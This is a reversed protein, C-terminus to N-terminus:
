SRGERHRLRLGDLFLELGYTFREAPDARIMGTLAARLDPDALVPDRQEWDGDARQAQEEITHGLVYHFVTFLMWAAREAPFGAGTLVRLAQEGSHVTNPEIVYTGAVVRAGDRHGLLARRLRQGLEALQADWPGDTFPERAVSDLIRDAMAGLLAQKNAFHWYIGGAQVGLHAGLKRMTLGDLGEADLLQLAGTVVDARRLQM